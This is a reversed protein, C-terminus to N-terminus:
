NHLNQYLSKTHTHTVTHKNSGEELIVGSSPGREDKDEEEMDSMSSDDEFNFKQKRVRTSFRIPATPPGESDSM